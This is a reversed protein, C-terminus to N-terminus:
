PKHLSLSPTPVFKSLHSPCQDNFDVLIGRRSEPSVYLKSLM